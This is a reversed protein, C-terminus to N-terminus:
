KADVTLKASWTGDSDLTLEVPYPGGQLVLVMVGAGRMRRPTGTFSWAEGKVNMRDLYCLLANPQLDLAVTTPQTPIPMTM